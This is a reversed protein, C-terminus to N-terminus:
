KDSNQFAKTTHEYWEKVRLKDMQGFDKEPPTSIVIQSDDFFERLKSKIDVAARQGTLREDTNTAIIIRECGLSMIYGLQKGSLSTGFMVLTNKIGAEWLSLCDGISEILIIEKEDQIIHRNLHSPYLFKKKSSAFKWKPTAGFVNEHYHRGAFGIINGAKDYIPFIIRRALKGSQELGAQFVRMTELSIGRKTVFFGYDPLLTRLHEKPYHKTIVLAEEQSEELAIFLGEELNLGHLRGFSRFSMNKGTGFDTVVGTRKNIALTAAGRGGRYNASTRWFKGQNTLKYGLSHLIEEYNM